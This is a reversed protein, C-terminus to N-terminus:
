YVEFIINNKDEFIVKYAAMYDAKNIQGTEFKKHYVIYKVKNSELQLKQRSLDEFDLDEILSHDIRRLIDGTVTPIHHMTQYVMYKKLYFRDSAPLDLIAFKEPRNKLAHYCAPMEITTMNNCVSFYDLLLLLVVGSLMVFRKLKALPLSWLYRIGFAVLISLFLYSFVIMRSPYRAAKLFPMVKLAAYPLIIPLKKGLVHVFEGMSFLLFAFFAWVYPKTDIRNKRYGLYGLGLAFVGLYVIKSSQNGTFMKNVIKIFELERLWHFHHPTIFALLDANASSHGGREIMGSNGGWSVMMNVFWPLFLLVTSLVILVMKFFVDLIFVQKKEWAMYVYALVMFILGYVMYYWSCITMLFFFLCALIISKWSQNRMSKIFFLVFFPIFQISATEDHHLSHVFHSPNFAFIFGAILSAYFHGTLHRSLLFAGIGGLIFTHLILINYVTTLCLFKTLFFSVALNYFSFPQFYLSTGQPHYIYTSHALDLGNTFAKNAWWLGWYHQMNDAAPGIISTTIRSLCPYFFLAVCLTYFLAAFGLEVWFLNRTVKINM